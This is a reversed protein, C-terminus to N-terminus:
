RRKPSITSVSVMLSLGRGNVAVLDVITPPNMWSLQLMM